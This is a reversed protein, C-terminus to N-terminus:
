IRPAILGRSALMVEMEQMIIPDSKVSLPERMILSNGDTLTFSSHAREIVNLGVLAKVASSADFTDLKPHDILKFSEHLTGPKKLSKWISDLESELLQVDASVGGTFTYKFETPPPESLRWNDIPQCANLVIVDKGYEREAKLDSIVQENLFSKVQRDKLDIFLSGDDTYMPEELTDAVALLSNSAVEIFSVIKKM